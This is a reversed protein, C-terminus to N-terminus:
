VIFHHFTIVFIHDTPSNKNNTAGTFTKTRSQKYLPFSKPSMISAVRSIPQTTYSFPARKAQRSREKTFENTHHKVGYKVCRTDHNSVLIIILNSRHYSM